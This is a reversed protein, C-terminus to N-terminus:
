TVRIIWNATNYPPLNNHAGGGGTAEIAGNVGSNDLVSSFSNPYPTGGGHFSTSLAHSHSPMEPVTLVHTQEGGSQGLYGNYTDGSKFGAIFQQRLDPLNFTTSGDGLGFPCYKITHTGSGASSTNIASGGRTASIQFSNAGFGASIVYYLTNISLGTPLAGTTTFYISDGVVLGHSTLTVVAPSANSITPTGITPVLVAFSSPYTARSIAAGDCIAFGTPAVKGFYPQPSGFLYDFQSALIDDGAKIAM